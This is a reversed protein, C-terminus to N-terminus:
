TNECVNSVQAILALTLIIGMVDTLEQDMMHVTLYPIRVEM